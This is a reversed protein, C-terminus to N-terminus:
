QLVVPTAPVPYGNRTVQVWGSEPIQRDAVYPAGKKNGVRPVGYKDLAINIRSRTVNTNYGALSIYITKENNEIRVIPSGHLLVQINGADSVIVETNGGNFNVKSRIADLIQEEIKRAMKAVGTQPNHKLLHM